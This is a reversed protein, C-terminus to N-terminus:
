SRVSRMFFKCSAKRKRFFIFTRSKRTSRISSTNVVPEVRLSHARTKFFAPARETKAAVAARAYVHCDEFSWSELRLASLFAIDRLPKKLFAGAAVFHHVLKLQGLVLPNTRVAVVM